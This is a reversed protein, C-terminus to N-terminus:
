ELTLRYVNRSIDLSQYFYCGHHMWYFSGVDGFADDHISSINWGTKEFCKVPKVFRLISTKGKNSHEHSRLIVM